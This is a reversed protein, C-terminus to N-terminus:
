FRLIWSFTTLFCHLIAVITAKMSLCHLLSTATALIVLLFSFVARWICCLFKSVTRVDFNQLKLEKKRFVSCINQDQAFMFIHLFFFWPTIVLLLRRSRMWFLCFVVPRPHWQPFDEVVSQWSCVQSSNSLFCDDWCCFFRGMHAHLM